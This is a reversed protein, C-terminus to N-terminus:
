SRQRKKNLLQKIFFFSVNWLLLSLCSSKQTPKCVLCGPTSLRGNAQYPPPHPGCINRKWAFVLIATTKWDSSKQIHTGHCVHVDSSSRLHKEQGEVDESVPVRAAQQVHWTLPDLPLPKGEEGEKEKHSPTVSTHQPQLHTSAKRPSPSWFETGWVQTDFVRDAWKGKRCSTTKQPLFDGGLWFAMKKKMLFDCNPKWTQEVPIRSLHM